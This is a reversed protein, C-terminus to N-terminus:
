YTSISRSMENHATSQTSTQCQARDPQDIVVARYPQLLLNQQETRHCASTVHHTPSTNSWTAAATLDTVRSLRAPKVGAPCSAAFNRCCSAAAAAAFLVRMPLPPLLLLWPLRPPPELLLPDDELGASPKHSFIIASSAAAAASTNPLTCTTAAVQTPAPSHALLWCCCHQLQEMLCGLYHCGWSLLAQGARCVQADTLSAQAAM